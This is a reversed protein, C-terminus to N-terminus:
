FHVRLGFAVTRPNYAEEYGYYANNSSMNGFDAPDNLAMYPANM